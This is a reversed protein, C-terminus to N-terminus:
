FCQGSQLHPGTASCPSRVDGADRLFLRRIFSPFVACVFRVLRRDARLTGNIGLRHSPPKPIWQRNPIGPTPLSQRGNSHTSPRLQGDYRCGLFSRGHSLFRHALLAISRSRLLGISEIRVSASAPDLTLVTKALNRMTEAAEDRGTSYAWSPM